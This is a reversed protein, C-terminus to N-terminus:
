WGAGFCVFPAVRHDAQAGALAAAPCAGAVLAQHYAVVVECAVRDDVRAVGSLVTRAGSHLLAATMGLVEEGPRTSVMGLECSSLVVHEPVRGPRALDYGFLPGDALRLASFLPNAPEHVGHAAVHLLSAEGAAKLVAPGTAQPGTLATAGPWLEAVAEVEDDARELDPGSAVVVPGDGPPRARDRLWATASRAVSLPRGRLGPLVTWPVAVLAGAPVLVLPGEPVSPEVPRWLRQDLAALARDLGREVTARLGPPYGTISLVDLDAQVRRLTEVVGGADGLDVVGAERPGVVLAHLRGATLLHAVLVGGSDALAAQLESMGAPREVDGPGAAYWSRQRIARELEARRARMAPDDQGAMERERLQTRVLRLDGLLEAARPDDPPRVPSLRSALARAEEAWGLVAAPRGERLASDLGRAALARGHRAVATQLDLSGFSAQYRHLERLGARFQVRAPGRRGRALALEGRVLREQLRTTILDGARGAAAPPLLRQAEDPEGLRLHAQAATLRAVRADEALGAAALSEALAGAQVSVRRVSLDQDLRARAQVLDAILAWVPSGRRLFRSRAAGALRAAEQPRGALLAVRARALEAEALDQHARSSRYHEIAARLDADAENLLGAALLVQARDFRHVAAFGGEDPGAARAADMEALAAPLDGDLYHVYGLNHRAKVALSSWGTQDAVDRCREFDRRAAAMSGRHLHLLGRNLLVTVLGRVDTDLDPVAANLETLAEPLRGSRLLLLGRQSHWRGATEGSVRDAVQDLLDLGEAVRGREARVNALSIVVRESTLGGASPRDALATLAGRLLREAEAHRYADVCALARAFLEDADATVEGDDGVEAAVTV